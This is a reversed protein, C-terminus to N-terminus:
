TMKIGSKLHRIDSNHRLRTKTPVPHSQAPIAVTVVYCVGELECLLWHGKAINNTLLTVMAIVFKVLFCIPKLLFLLGSKLDGRIVTHM